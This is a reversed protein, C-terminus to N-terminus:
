KIIVVNKLDIKEDIFDNLPIYKGKISIKDIAKKSANVGVITAKSNFDGVSLIKGPVVLIKGDFIKSFKDLKELNVIVNNRKPKAIRKALDNWFEKKTKRTTQELKSILKVTELKKEM